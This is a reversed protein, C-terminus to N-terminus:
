EEEDEDLSYKESQYDYYMEKEKGDADLYTISLIDPRMREFEEMTRVYIINNRHVGNKKITEGPKVPECNYETSTDIFVYDVDWDEPYYDGYDSPLDEKKIGDKLRYRLNLEKITYDSNNTFWFMLERDGDNVEVETHMDLDEVHIPIGDGAKCGTLISGCAILIMVIKFIKKM